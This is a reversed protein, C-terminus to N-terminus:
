RRNASTRVNHASKKTFCFGTSISSFGPSQPPNQAPSSGCVRGSLFRSLVAGATSRSHEKLLCMLPTYGLFKSFDALPPINDQTTIYSRVSLSSSPPEGRAEVIMEPPPSECGGFRLYMHRPPLEATIVSLEQPHSKRTGHICIYTCASSDGCCHMGCVGSLLAHMAPPRRQMALPAHCPCASCAALRGLAWFYASM